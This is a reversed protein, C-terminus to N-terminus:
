CSVCGGGLRSGLVSCVRGWSASRQGGGEPGARYVGDNLEGVSGTPNWLGATTPSHMVARPFAGTGLWASVVGDCADSAVYRARLNGESNLRMPHSSSVTAASGHVPGATGIACSTARVRPSRSRHGASKVVARLLHSIRADLALACTAPHCAPVPESRASRLQHQDGVAHRQQVRLLLDQGRHQLAPAVLLEGAPQARARYRAPPTLDAREGRV